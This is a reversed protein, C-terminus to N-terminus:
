LFWEAVLVAAGGAMCAACAVASYFVDAADRGQGGAVLPPSPKTM